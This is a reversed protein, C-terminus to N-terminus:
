QQMAKRLKASVGSEDILKILDDHLIGNSLLAGRIDKDYRQEAGYIDTVKGGAEEVIIKAAAIDYAHCSLYLAAEFGGTAVLSAYECAGYISPTNSGLNQLLASFETEKYGANVLAHNLSDKKSVFMQKKEEILWAGKGEEALLTRKALPNSIVGAVSKGDLVVAGSFCFLPSGITFMLTGDLPDVVFLKKSEQTHNSEEEGLVKFDPYNKEVEDIVMKNVKFDAETVRSKSADEKEQFSIGSPSYYALLINGAKEALALLFKTTEQFEPTM